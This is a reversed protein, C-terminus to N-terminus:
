DLKKGCRPCFHIYFLFQSPEGKDNWKVCDFKENCWCKEKEKPEHIPKKCLDCREIDQMQQMTKCNNCLSM